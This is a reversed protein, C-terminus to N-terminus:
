AGNLWDYAEPEDRFGCCALGIAEGVEVVAHMAADEVAPAVLALRIQPLLAPRAAAVKLAVRMSSRFDFSGQRSVVVAAPLQNLRCLQFLSRISETVNTFLEDKELLLRAHDPGVSLM